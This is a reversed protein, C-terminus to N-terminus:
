GPAAGVILTVTRGRRRDHPAPSQGIIRPRGGLHLQDGTFRPRLGDNRLAHRADSPSLGIVRPVLLVCDQAPPCREPRPIQGITEGHKPQAIHRGAVPRKLHVELTGIVLDATCVVRPAPAVVPESVRIRVVDSTEMVQATAPRTCSSSGQDYTIFLSRSGRSVDTLSWARVPVIEYRTEGAAISGTSIAAM